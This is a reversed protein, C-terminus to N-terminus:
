ATHNPPQLQLKALQQPDIIQYSFWNGLGCRVSSHATGTRRKRFLALGLM